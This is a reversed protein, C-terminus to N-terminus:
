VQLVIKITGDRPNRALDYAMAAEDIPLTHTILRKLNLRGKEVLTIVENWYKRDSVSGYVVVDKLIVPLISAQPLPDPYLGYLVMKGGPIVAELAQRFSEATGACDMVLDVGRGETEERIVRALSEKRIDVTRDVGLSKGAELRFESDGSLLVRRAGMIRAVQVAVLGAPGPGEILVIDSARIGPKRLAAYVEMDLIAAEEMSVSDAVVHVNEEPVVLWEQCGGDHNFGLEYGSVCFQRSGALCFHCQGCGVVSDCTVRSGPQLRKVGNGIKEVAGAIEHGLVRPPQAQPVLGDLIHVDTRCVGVAKVRLLVDKPGLHGNESHNPVEQIEVRGDGM